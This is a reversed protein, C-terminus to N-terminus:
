IPDQEEAGPSDEEEHGYRAEPTRSKTKLSKQEAWVTYLHPSYPVTYHDSALSTVRLASVMSSFIYELAGGAAAARLAAVLVRRSLEDM